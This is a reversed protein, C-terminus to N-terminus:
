PQNAFDIRSRSILAGRGREARLDGEDVIVDGRAVTWTPFGRLKMGQYPSYDVNSHLISPDIETEREPDVVIIDADMGAEIRGKRELGFIAAPGTACLEVFRERSIRGGGVGETFLIPLRTEIGPLGNPIETFNDCGGTKQGEYRFPAHDSSVQQISGDALATWLADSHGEDRMPPSCVFKAVECGATPDYVSADLVLYQPCTEATIQAGRARADAIHRATAESTVHAICLSANSLEALMIARNTAEAEVEPPRSPAHYEPGTKGQALHRAILHTVASDNECHVYVLGGHAGTVELIRIFDDDDIKKDGYTMYVKFSPFDDGILTPIEALSADNVDTVIMHFGFDIIADQQILTRREDRAQILSGGLDQLGFDLLSTVGGFAAAVTGTYFDDSTTVGLRGIPHAIHTHTDIGGPMVWHGSADIVRDVSDVDLSDVLSPAVAEITGGRVLVDASRSGDPGIVTGNAILLTAASSPM